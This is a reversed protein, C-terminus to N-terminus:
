ESDKSDFVVKNNLKLVGQEQTLITTYDNHDQTIYNNKLWQNLQTRLEKEKTAHFHNIITEIENLKQNLYAYQSVLLYTMPLTLENQLFLNRVYISYRELSANDTQLAILAEATAKSIAGNEELSSVILLNHRSSFDAAQEAAVVRHLELSSIQFLLPTRAAQYIVTDVLEKSIKLFLNVNAGELLDLLEEAQIFNKEPWRIKGYLYFNGQPTVVSLTDFVLEAGPSVVKPLLLLIKQRFQSQYLEGVLIIKKLLAFFEDATKANFGTLHIKLNIPGISQEGMKISKILLSRDGYLGDSSLNTNIDLYCDSFIINENSNNRYIIEPVHLLIKGLWLNDMASYLSFKTDFSHLMFATGASRYYFKDSLIKGVLKNKNDSIRYSLKLGNDFALQTDSKILSLQNFRVVNLNEGFFNIEQEYIFDNTHFVTNALAQLQIRNQILAVGLLYHPDRRLFLWPGHFIKQQVSFIPSDGNTSLSLSKWFTLFDPNLIKVQLRVDSYFWHRQYKEVKVSVQTMTVLSHRYYAKIWLGFLGPLVTVLLIIGLLGALVKRVKM